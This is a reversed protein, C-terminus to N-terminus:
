LPDYIGYLFSSFSPPLLLDLACRCGPTIFTYLCCHLTTYHLSLPKTTQTTNQTFNAHLQNTRHNTRPQRKFLMQKTLQTSRKTYTQTVISTLTRKRSTKRITYLPPSYNFLRAIILATRCHKSQYQTPSSVPACCDLLLLCPTRYYYTSDSSIVMQAHIALQCPLLSAAGHPRTHRSIISHPPRRLYWVVLTALCCSCSLILVVQFGLLLLLWPWLPLCSLRLSPLSPWLLGSCRVAKISLPL